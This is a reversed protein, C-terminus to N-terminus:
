IFNLAKELHTKFIQLVPSEVIEKCLRNKEKIMWLTSIKKRLMGDSNGMHWSTVTAEKKMCVRDERDRGTLCNFAAILNQGFRRVSCVWSGYGTRGYGCCRQLGKQLEAWNTLTQRTRLDWLCPTSSWFGNGDVKHSQQLLYLETHRWSKGDCPVRSVSTWSTSQQCWADKRFLKM